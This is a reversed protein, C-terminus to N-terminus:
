LVVSARFLQWPWTSTAWAQIGLSEPPLSWSSWPKFGAWMFLEHSGIKFFIWWLFPSTSYSLHARLEFGLIAFFFFFHWFARRTVRGWIIETRSVTRAILNSEYMYCIEKYIYIYFWYNNASFRKYVFFQLLNMSWYSLSGLM